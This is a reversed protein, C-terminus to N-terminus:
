FSGSAGGAASPSSSTNLQAGAPLLQNLQSALTEYNKLIFVLIALGIFPKVLPRLVDIGYLARLLLIALIWPLFKKFDNATAGWLAAANGHIGVAIFYLAYLGVLAATM